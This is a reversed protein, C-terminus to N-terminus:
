CLIQLHLDITSYPISGGWGLIRKQGTESSTFNDSRQWAQFLTSPPVLNSLLYQEFHATLSPLRLEVRLVWMTSPPLWRGFPIRWSGCSCLPIHVSACVSLSVRTNKFILKKFFFFQAQAKIWHILDDQRKSKFSCKRWFQGLNGM